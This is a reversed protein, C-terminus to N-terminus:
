KGFNTGTVMDTMALVILLIKYAKKLLCRKRLLVVCFFLNGFISLFAISGFVARLVVGSRNGPTKKTSFLSPTVNLFTTPLTKM